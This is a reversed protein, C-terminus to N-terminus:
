GFNQIGASNIGKKQHLTEGVGGPDNVVRLLYELESEKQGQKQVQRGTHVYELASCFAAPDRQIVLSRRSILLKKLEVNVHEVKNGCGHCRNTITFKVSSLEWLIIRGIM